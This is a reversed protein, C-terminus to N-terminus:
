SIIEERLTAAIPLRAVMRMPYVAAVAATMVLLVTYLVMARPELVFFHVTAPIGPMTKLLADLWAALVLGFPIAALGGAGVLLASRWLVDTIIRGQSLGLARLAAIEGLRQNTSVSLLVAILLMGFFLTISSLVVSIQRFYSFEVQQFRAVLEDNTVVDLDPRLRRIAFAAADPGASINSAVMIMDVRDRAGAGCMRGFDQLSTVATLQGAEDFPFDAIGDLRFTTPPLSSDNCAGRLAVTSGLPRRLRDALNQNVVLSPVGTGATSGLDTGRVFTWPRKGTVTAGILVIEEPDGREDQLEVDGVEAEGLRLPVAQDVEPLAAIAATTGAADAIRPGSRPGGSTVMVRVDFGIAELVEEMSIVLGRSLMLMDLLLAGTAAIGVVGLITRGPQRVLSRAAFQFAAPMQGFPTM